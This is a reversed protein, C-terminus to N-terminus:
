RSWISETGGTPTHPSTPSQALGIEPASPHIGTMLNATWPSHSPRTGNEPIYDFRFEDPDVYMLAVPFLQALGTVYVVNARARAYVSGETQGIVPAFFFPIKGERLQVEVYSPTVAIDRLTLNGEVVHTTPKVNKTIYSEALRRAAATDGQSRILEQAGALAGADAVTQIERDREWLGGGDIVLATLGLLVVLCIAM